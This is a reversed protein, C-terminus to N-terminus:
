VEKLKKIKEMIEQSAQKYDTNKDFIIPKGIIINIDYKFLKPFKNGRPLIKETGQILIPIVPSATRTALLGVGSQAKGFRDPPMRRGEPFIGICQNNKLAKLAKKLSKIDKKDRSVPIAGAKKILSGLIPIKFLEEKALFLVPRPSITNLVLPDLHSKHNAALICSTQLPINEIGKVKIKLVKKIAPKLKFFIKYGAQSYYKDM